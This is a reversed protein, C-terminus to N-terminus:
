KNPSAPRQIFPAPAYPHLIMQELDGLKIPEGNNNTDILHGLAQAIRTREQRVGAEERERAALLNTIFAIEGDIIEDFSIVSGYDSHRKLRFGAEWDGVVAVEAKLQQKTM